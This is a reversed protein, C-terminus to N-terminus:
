PNGGYIIEEASLKVGHKAALALLAQHTGNQNPIHGGMSIWKAVRYESGGLM